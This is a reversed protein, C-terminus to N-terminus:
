QIVTGGNSAAQRLKLEQQIKELQTSTNKYINTVTLLDYINIRLELQEIRSTQLRYNIQRCTCHTTASRRNTLVFQETFVVAVPAQNYKIVSAQDVLGMRCPYGQLYDALAVRDNTAAQIVRHWKYGRKVLLTKTPLQRLM